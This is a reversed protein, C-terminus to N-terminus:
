GHSSVIGGSYLLEASWCMVHSGRPSLRQEKLGIQRTYVHARPTSTRMFGIRIM